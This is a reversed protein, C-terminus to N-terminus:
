CLFKNFNLEAILIHFATGIISTCFNTLINSPIVMPHYFVRIQVAKPGYFEGINLTKIARFHNLRSRFM